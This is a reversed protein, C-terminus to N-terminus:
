LFMNIENLRAIRAYKTSTSPKTDSYVEVGDLVDILIRRKEFLVRNPTYEKRYGCKSNIITNLILKEDIGIERCENIKKKIAGIYEFKENNKNGIFTNVYDTDKLGEVVSEFIGLTKDNVKFTETKTSMTIWPALEKKLKNEVERAEKESDFEYTKIFTNPRIHQSTNYQSLRINLNDTIGFKYYDENGDTVLYLYHKKM